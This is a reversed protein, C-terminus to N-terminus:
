RWLGKFWEWTSPDVTDSTVITVTDTISNPIILHTYQWNPTSMIYGAPIFIPKPFYEPFSDPDDIPNM